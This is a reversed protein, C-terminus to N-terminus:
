VRLISNELLFIVERTKLRPKFGNVLDQTTVQKKEMLVARIEDETVPGTASAPTPEAKM